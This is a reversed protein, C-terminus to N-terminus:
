QRRVGPAGTEGFYRALANSLLIGADPYTRCFAGHVSALDTRDVDPGLPYKTLELLMLSGVSEDIRESRGFVLRGTLMKHMLAVAAPHNTLFAVSDRDLPRGWDTELWAIVDRPTAHEKQNLRWRAIWGRLSM